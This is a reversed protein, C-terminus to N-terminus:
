HRDFMHLLGRSKYRMELATVVWHWPPKFDPFDKHPSHGQNPHVNVDIGFKSLLLMASHELSLHQRVYDCPAFDAWREEMVALGAQLDEMSWVKLGCREDFYPASSAPIAKESPTWEYGSGDDEGITRVDYVLIPCGMALAEQLALGQSEQRGYWIVYRSKALAKLYDEQKYSGYNIRQYNIGQQKLIAEIQDAGNMGLGDRNKYYLLVQNLSKPDSDRPPFTNSDIGVPWYDLTCDNFGALRWAEAAWPSPHLYLVERPIHITSPIDRPMVFLNPGIVVKVKKVLKDLGLLARYDDQIYLYPCADLAKNVVHPYGIRELGKVLNQGVKCIAGAAPNNIQRSIVNIM